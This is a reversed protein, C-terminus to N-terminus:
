KIQEIIVAGNAVKDATFQSAAFSMRAAYLGGGAGFGHFGNALQAASLWAAYFWVNVPLSGNVYDKEYHYAFASGGHAGGYIPLSSTDGGRQNTGGGDGGHYNGINGGTASGGVGNYANNIDSIADQGGLATAYAGFSTTGGTVTVVITDDKFLKLTTVAIGGAGGYGINIGSVGGFATTGGNGICTVRYTGSRPVTWTGSTTLIAVIPYAVSQPIGAGGRRSIIAESM